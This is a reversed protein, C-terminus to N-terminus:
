GDIDGGEPGSGITGYVDGATEVDRWGADRLRFSMLDDAAEEAYETAKEESEAWVLYKRELDDDAWVEVVFLKKM